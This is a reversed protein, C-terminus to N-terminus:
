KPVNGSCKRIVFRIATGSVPSIIGAARSVRARSPMLVHGSNMEAAVSVRTVAKIM